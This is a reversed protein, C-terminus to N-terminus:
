SGREHGGQGDVPPRLNSSEDAIGGTFEMPEVGIGGKSDGTFVLAIEPESM